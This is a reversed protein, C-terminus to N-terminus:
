RTVSILKDRSINLKYQSMTKILEQSTESVCIDTSIFTIKFKIENYNFSEPDQFNLKAYIFFFFFYDGDCCFDCMRWCAVSCSAFGCTQSSFYFLFSWAVVNECHDRERSFNIVERANSKETRLGINKCNAVCCAAVIAHLISFRLSLLIGRNTKGTCTLRRRHLLDARCKSASRPGSTQHFVSRRSSPFRKPDRCDRSKRGEYEEARFGISRFPLRDRFSDGIWPYRPLILFFFYYIRYTARIKKM